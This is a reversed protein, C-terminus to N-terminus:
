CAPLRWLRLTMELFGIMQKRAQTTQIVRPNGRTLPEAPWSLRTSWLVKGKVPLFLGGSPNWTSTNSCLRTSRTNRMPANGSASIRWLSARSGTSACTAKKWVAQNGYGRAKRGRQRTGWSRRMRDALVKMKAVVEPHQDAVDKTEGPDKEVDFLALKIRGTEYPVPKGGTGGRRGALTPYEHPFHLKWKGMRVAHLHRGWYFYYAEHPSQAGAQGALLPWINKGDIPHDPLKAGILHAFTPLLDITMAPTKCVTGAPIRGPWWMLTPERCGGDFMTGKGERLPGASGAHDGYCLWPGNDSTFIVLTNKDLKHKRLTEVIQGVSWDIEMVVDGFLGRSSKGRFKDSVHLPVHVMTHALYVLFPRDKNKEIFQVARETYQTTLQNQDEDTLKPKLIRTGEMLPLDPFLKGAGPHLPWMDNSYPLGFYEDFGHHTPLFKPHHGLHWKGICSTAYNKQKVVEALTMENSSIGHDARHTLAGEIGIRVNYCGTMLSARSASCVAQSVYFDTFIRGERALRDLHPTTYGRAGFPGIDAYGMDDILIVIINPLRGSEASRAAPGGGLWILVSAVTVIWTSLRDPRVARRSTFFPGLM